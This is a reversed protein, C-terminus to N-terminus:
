LIVSNNLLNIVDDGYIFRGFEVKELIDDFYDDILCYFKGEKYRIEKCQEVVFYDDVEFYIDAEKNIIVRMDLNDLYSSDEIKSVEIFIGIKQNVYVVVKYFGRLNLYKKKKILIKKVLEIIEEKDNLEKNKLYIKNLYIMYDTKSKMEIKM